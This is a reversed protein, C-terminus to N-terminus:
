IFCSMSHVSPGVSILLLKGKAFDHQDRSHCFKMRPFIDRYQVFITHSKKRRFSEPVLFFFIGKKCYIYKM